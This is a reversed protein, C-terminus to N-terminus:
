TDNEPPSKTIVSRAWENTRLTVRGESKDQESTNNEARLKVSYFNEENQFNREGVLFLPINRCMREGVGEALKSFM